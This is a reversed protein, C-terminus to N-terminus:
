GWPFHKPAEESQSVPLDSSGTIVALLIWGCLLVAPAESLLLHSVECTQSDNVTKKKKKITSNSDSKKASLQTPM